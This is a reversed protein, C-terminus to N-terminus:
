KLTFYCSGVLGSSLQHADEIVTEIEILILGIRNTSIAPLAFSLRVVTQM